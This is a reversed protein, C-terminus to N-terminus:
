RVAATDGEGEDLGLSLLIPQARRDPDGGRIGGRRGAAERLTRGVPAGAEGRITVPQGVNGGGLIVGLLRVNTLEGLWFPRTLTVAHQVEDNYRSTELPPSGMVFSGPPVLVLRMGVGNTVEPLPLVHGAAVLKRLRLEEHDRDGEGDWDRLRLWLRVLEARGDHGGEELWDALALWTLRDAPQATLSHQFTALTTM